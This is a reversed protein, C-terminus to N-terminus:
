YCDYSIFQIISGSGGGFSALSVRYFYDHWTAGVITEHVRTTSNFWQVNNYRTETVTSIYNTNGSGEDSTVHRANIGRFTHDRDGIRRFDNIGSTATRSQVTSPIPTTTATVQVTGAIIEPDGDVDPRTTTVNTLTQVATSTGTTPFRATRDTPTLTPASDLVNDTLFTCIEM